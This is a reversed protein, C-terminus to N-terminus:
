SCDSKVSKVRHWGAFAGLRETASPIAISTAGNSTSPTLLYEEGRKGIDIDVQHIVYHIKRV